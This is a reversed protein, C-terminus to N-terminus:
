RGDISCEAGEFVLEYWTRRRAAAPHSALDAHIQLRNLLVPTRVPTKHHRASNSGQIVHLGRGVSYSTIRLADLNGAKDRSRREYDADHRPRGIGASNGGRGFAGAQIDGSFPVIHKCGLCLRAPLKRLEAGRDSVAPCLDERSQAEGAKALIGWASARPAESCAPAAQSDM